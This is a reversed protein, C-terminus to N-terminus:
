AGVQPLHATEPIPFAELPVGVDPTKVLVFDCMLAEVLRGTLQGVLSTLSERRSLAGLVIVDPETKAAFQSLAQDPDGATLVHVHEAGIHSESALGFLRAARAAAGASSGVREAYVVELSGRSTRALLESTRIIAQATQPTGLESMDVMATFRPLDVWPKGRSLLLTAPCARMLEWDNSDLSFRRFPHAGATSKMVLDPRCSRVKDVIAQYHPSDCVADVVIPVDKAHVADSLTELYDCTDTFACLWAQEVGTTDYARRLMYARDADCAFLEIRAGCRRALHLAKELLAKDSEERNAVVLISSIKNVHFEEL